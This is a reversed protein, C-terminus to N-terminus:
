CSGACGASTTPSSSPRPTSSSRPWGRGRTTAISSRCSRSPSALPRHDSRDPLRPRRRRPRARRGALRAPDAAVAAPLSSSAGAAPGRPTRSGSARPIRGPSSSTSRSATPARAAVAPGAAPRVGRAAADAARRLRGARGARAHDDGRSRRPRAHLPRGVRGVAVPRTPWASGVVTKWAVAGSEPDIGWLATGDSSATRSPPWSGTARRRSRPRRRARSRPLPSTQISGHEPDLLFKGPTAPRRGCRASPDRWRSHRARDGHRRADAAGGLPVAYKSGYEGVAFAEFGARDGIAWVFQGSVAPTQWTWGAVKVEQM